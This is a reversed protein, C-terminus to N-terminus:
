SSELTLFIEVLEQPVLKMIVLTEYHFPENIHKLYNSSRYEILLHLNKDGQILDARITPKGTRVLPTTLCVLVFDRPDVQPHHRRGNLHEDLRM